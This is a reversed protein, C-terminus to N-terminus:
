LVIIIHIDVVLFTFQTGEAAYEPSRVYIKQLFDLLAGTLVVSMSVPLSDFHSHNIEFPNKPPPVMALNVIEELIDSLRIDVTKM